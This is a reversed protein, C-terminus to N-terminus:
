RMAQALARDLRLLGDDDAPLGIRLASPSTLLRVLVGQRALAEYLRGAEATLCYRFLDCEGQPTLGRAQLVRDLARAMTALRRAQSIPWDTDSVAACLAFRAPGSLAWPGLQEALQACAEAPGGVVGARVGALGHFKGLSRLVWLGPAGCLPGLSAVPAAEVFAEDVILWGGRQALSAQWRRLVADGTLEGTPNNPNLWVLVDLTPLAADVQGPHLLQVQHGAAAWCRAHEAYGVAPVGVRAVGYQTRWLWPLSQIASQTGPVLVCGSHDPAGLWRRAQPLLGDDPDPLRQWVERPVPPLPYSWPSIGTSLDLWQGVPRHWQQAARHLRGGHELSLDDTM